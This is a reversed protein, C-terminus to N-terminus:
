SSKVLIRVGKSDKKVFPLFKDAVCKVDDVTTEFLELTGAPGPSESIGYSRFLRAITKYLEAYALNIGLCQRSGKTFSVLYKDLRPDDVWRQPIYDHSNPFITSDHHMLYTTM